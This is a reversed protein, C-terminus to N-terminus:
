FHFFSSPIPCTAPSDKFYHEIGYGPIIQPSKLSPASLSLPTERVKKNKSDLPSSFPTVPKLHTRISFDRLLWTLFDTSFQAVPIVESSFTLIDSEPPGM